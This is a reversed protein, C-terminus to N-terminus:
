RTHWTRQASEPVVMLPCPALQVLTRSTSGLIMGRFGGHGRAGVVLCRAGTAAGALKASPQGGMLVEREVHVEPYKEHWGFLVVSADSLSQGAHEPWEGHSPRRVQVARLPVGWLDAEEFAFAVAAASAASGDVGVVVPGSGEGSEVPEFALVVPCPPHGVLAAGVGGFTLVEGPEVARRAGVVLVAAHEAAERLVHSPRGDALEMTIELGAHRAEAWDRHTELLSQGAARFHTAWLHERSEHADKPAAGAPWEQAHILRLPLRRRDAADAAWDLAGRAAVSRSVGVVVPRRVDHSTM